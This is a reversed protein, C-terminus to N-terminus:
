LLSDKQLSTTGQNKADARIDDLDPADFFLEGPGFAQFLPYKGGPFDGVALRFGLAGLMEGGPEGGFLGEELGDSGSPRAAVPEDIDFEQVILPPLRLEHDLSFHLLEALLVADRAEMNRKGMDPFQGLRDDDQFSHLSFLLKM